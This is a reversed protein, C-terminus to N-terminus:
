PLAGEPLVVQIRGITYRATMLDIDDEAPPMSFSVSLSTTTILREIDTVDSGETKVDGLSPNADNAETIADIEKRQTDAEEDFAFLDSVSIEDIFANHDRQELAVLTPSTPIELDEPVEYTGFVRILGGDAGIEHTIDPGSPVANPDSIPCAVEIYGTSSSGWDQALAIIKGTARGGPLRMDFIRVRGGVRLGTMAEATLDIMLRVCHARIVAEKVAQGTLAHLVELNKPGESGAFLTRTVNKFRAVGVTAVENGAINKVQGTQYSYAVEHAGMDEPDYIPVDYHLHSAGGLSWILPTVEIEPAERRRQTVTVATTLPLDYTIVSASAVEKPRILCTIPDITAKKRTYPYGTFGAVVPTRRLLFFEPSQISLSMMAQRFAKPTATNAGYDVGMDIQDTKREDFVADAALTISAAPAEAVDSRISLVHSTGMAAGEGYIVVPDGEGEVPMLRPDLSVPDHYIIKPVYSEARRPASTNELAAPVFSSVEAWVEDVQEIHEPRRCIVQVTVTDGALGVPYGIVEGRALIQMTQGTVGCLIGYPLGAEFSGLNGLPYDVTVVAAEEERHTFSAEFVPRSTVADFLSVDHDLDLTRFLYIRDHM